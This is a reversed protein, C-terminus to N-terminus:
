LLLAAAPRAIVTWRQEGEFAVFRLRRLTQSLVGSLGLDISGRYWARPDLM